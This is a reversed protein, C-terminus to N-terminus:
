WPLWLTVNSVRKDQARNLDYKAHLKRLIIFHNADAVYRMTITVLNGHCCCQYILSEKTKLRISMVNPMTKKKLIIPM